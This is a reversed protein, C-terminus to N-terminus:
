GRKRHFRPSSRGSAVIRIGAIRPPLAVLRDCRTRVRITAGAIWGTTPLECVNQDSDVFFVTISLKALVNAIAEIAVRHRQDGPFALAVRDVPHAQQLRVAYYFAVAVHTKVQGRDFPRGYRLTHSKFSTGGKAEILLRCPADSRQAILDIGHQLTTRQATISWGQAVLHRALAGVIDNETLCREIM